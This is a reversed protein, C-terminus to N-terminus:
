QDVHHKAHRWLVTFTAGKGEGASEIKTSGSDLDVFRQVIHLGLGAGKTKRTLESGPRFFKDFLRASQKPDFGVGDDIVRLAVMSDRGSTEHSATLRVSGGGNAQVSKFANSVVNSIVSKVAAADATIELGRPVENEIEVGHIHGMCIIPELVRDVIDQLDIVESTLEIADEDLRAADLLNTVMNGLRETAAVMRDAIRTRGAKDPDRLLLTEASLQLSALPSKLEHSVAALFNQQRRFLETRQRLTVGIMAVTGVLVVLFFSGEWGYRSMRQSREAELEVIATPPISVLTTGDVGAEMSLAPFYGTIQDLPLGAVLMKQATHVQQEYSGIVSDLHKQSYFGQDVIWWTVQGFCTLLLLVFTLQVKRGSRITSPTM